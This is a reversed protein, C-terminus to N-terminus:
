IIPSSNYSNIQNYSSSPPEFSRGLKSAEANIDLFGTPKNILYDLPNIRSGQQGLQSASSLPNITSYNLNPRQNNRHQPAQIIPRRYTPNTHLLEDLESANHACFITRFLLKIRYINNM